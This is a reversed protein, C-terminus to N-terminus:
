SAPVAAPSCSKPILRLSSSCSTVMFRTLSSREMPLQARGVERMTKADLLLLYTTGRTGDLTVVALVGDDEMAGPWPAIHSIETLAVFLEM